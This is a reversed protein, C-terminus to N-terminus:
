GGLGLRESLFALRDQGWFREGAIVYTPAGFVEATIARETDRRYQDMVAPERAAAALADGDLGIDRALTALARWDAIDRDEHWIAQLVAHSLALADAEINRAAILLCSAPMRDVPYFRPELTLPVGLRCSWRSLELQRYSQRQPPREAFPRGGSAAFVQALEIPLVEVSAGSRQALDIFRASGLWSWPSAVSFWYQIATAPRQARAADSM